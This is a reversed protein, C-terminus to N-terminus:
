QTLDDEDRWRGVAQEMEMRNPSILNAGCYRTYDDGKPDVLTPKGTERAAAILRAISSLAGKAYDSFVVIDHKAILPLVLETLADVAQPTPEQEFDVRLLQQQRGLVRMKVTTPASDKA